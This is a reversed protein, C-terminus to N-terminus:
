FLTSQHLRCLRAWPPAKNKLSSAVVHLIQLLLQAICELVSLQQLPRQVVTGVGVLVPAPSDGAVLPQLKQPVRHQAHHHGVVQVARVGIHGLPLEGAGPRSQHALPTQHLHGPLQGQPVIQLQALPLAGAAAPPPGGDLRIRHLGDDGGNVQVPADAGGPLHNLAKDEAAVGTIHGLILVVLGGQLLQHLLLAPLLQAIVQHPLRTGVMVLAKGNLDGEVALDDAM